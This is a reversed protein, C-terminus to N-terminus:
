LSPTRNHVVLALETKTIRMSGEIRRSSIKVGRIRVVGDDTGVVGAEVGCRCQEILSPQVGFRVPARMMEEVLRENRIPRKIALHAPNEGSQGIQSL